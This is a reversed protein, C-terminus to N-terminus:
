TAVHGRVPPQMAVSPSAAMTIASTAVRATAHRIPTGGRSGHLETGRRDLQRVLRAHLPVLLYTSSPLTGSGYFCITNGTAGTEDWSQVLDKECTAQTITEPEFTAGTPAQAGTLKRGTFVDRRSSLPRRDGHVASSSQDWPARSDLGLRWM